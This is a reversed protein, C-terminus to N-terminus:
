KMPIHLKSIVRWIFLMSMEDLILHHSQSYFKACADSFKYFLSKIEWLRDYSRNTKNPQNMNGCFHLFRLIFFRYHKLMASYLVTWNHVLLQEPERSMMGWKYLWFSICRRHLRMLFNHVDMMMLLHMYINTSTNMLRQWCWSSWFITCFEQECPAGRIVEIWQSRLIKNRSGSVYNNDSATLTKMLMVKETVHSQLVSELFSVARFFMLFHTYISSHVFNWGAPVHMHWQFLVVHAL